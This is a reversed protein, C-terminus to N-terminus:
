SVREPYGLVDAVFRARTKESADNWDLALFKKWRVKLREFKGEGAIRRASKDAAEDSVAAGGDSAEDALQKTEEKACDSSAALADDVALKDHIEHLRKRRAALADNVREVIGAKLQIDAELAKIEQTTKKDMAGPVASVDRVLDAHKRAAIEAVARLQASTAPQKAIELLAAQNDDLGLKRM